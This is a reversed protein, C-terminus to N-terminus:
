WIENYKFYDWKTGCSTKCSKEGLAGKILPQQNLLAAENIDPYVILKTISALKNKDVLSQVVPSINYGKSREKNYNEKVANKEDALGISVRHGNILTKMSINKIFDMNSMSPVKCIRKTERLTYAYDDRKESEILYCIAKARYYPNTKAEIVAERKLNWMVDDAYKWYYGLSPKLNIGNLSYNISGPNASKNVAKMAVRINKYLAFVELNPFLQLVPRDTKRYTQKYMESKPRDQMYCFYWSDEIKVRNDLSYKIQEVSVLTDDSAEEISNYSNIVSLSESDVLYILNETKM